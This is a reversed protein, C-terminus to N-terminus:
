FSRGRAVVVLSSRDLVCRGLQPDVRQTTVARDNGPGPGAAGATLDDHRSRRCKIRFGVRECFTM